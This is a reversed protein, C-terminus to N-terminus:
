KTRWQDFGRRDLEAEIADFVIEAPMVALSTWLIIAARAAILYETMSYPTASWSRVIKNMGSGNLRCSRLEARLSPLQKDKLEKRYAGALGHAM